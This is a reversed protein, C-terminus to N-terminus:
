GNGTRLLLWCKPSCTWQRNLRYAEYAPRLRTNTAKHTISLRQSSDRIRYDGEIDELGERVFSLIIRSQELSGSVALAEIGPEFLPTGPRLCEAALNGCLWTKASGRPCTLVGIEIDPQFVSRLWDRHFPLVTVRKQLSKIM